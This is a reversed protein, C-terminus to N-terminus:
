AEGRIRSLLNEIKARRAAAEGAFKWVDQPEVVELGEALLAAMEPAAAILRANEDGFAFATVTKSDPGIYAAPGRREKDFPGVM